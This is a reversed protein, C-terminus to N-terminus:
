STDTIIFTVTIDASAHLDMDTIDSVSLEWEVSAGDTGGVGTACSPIATIVDVASGTTVSTDSVASGELGGGDPITTIKLLTGTPLPGTTIQATIEKTTTGVVVTYQLYTLSASTNVAAPIAGAAPAILLLNGADGSCAIVAMEENGVGFTSTDSDTTAAAVGFALVAVMLSALLLKRM